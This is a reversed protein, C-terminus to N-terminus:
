EAVPRDRGRRSFGFGSLLLGAIMAAVPLLHALLYPLYRQHTLANGILRHLEPDLLSVAGAM